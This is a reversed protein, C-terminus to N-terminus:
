AYSKNNKFYSNIEKKTTLKNLLGIFDYNYEEENNLVYNLLGIKYNHPSKNLKNLISNHFSMVYINKNRYRRLLRNFKNIDINIDKIELLM